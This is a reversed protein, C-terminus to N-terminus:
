VRRWTRGCTAQGPQLTWPQSARPAILGPLLDVPTTSAVIGSAIPIRAQAVAHRWLGEDDGEYVALTWRHDDYQTNRQPNVIAWGHGRDDSRAVFLSTSTQIM